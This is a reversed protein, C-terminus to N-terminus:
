PAMRLVVPDAPSSMDVLVDCVDKPRAQSRYLAQGPLYRHIYRRRVNDASEFLELDRSLARRLSEDQDVDLDVSLDWHPRLEPRLLFVGDFLLVAETAASAPAALSPEDRRYDHLSSRYQLDGQPGLPQLVHDIMAQVDFADHYYGDPSLDGRHKRLAAPQHFDDGSVRIVPRAPVLHAALDDALTTKGACDPGDVAVRLPHRAARQLIVEGLYACLQGRGVSTM